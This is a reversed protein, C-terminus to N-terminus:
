RLEQELFRHAVKAPPAGARDVDRNMRRMAPADIRGALGRLAEVVRPREEALGPRALVIADYPPIVGRDDRLVRLDFAAIRGDTSFASIVDVEGRGAAEYMLAPDMSRRAAFDLGYHEVLARWEPRQFFEYDGGIELRPAHPALDSITEAGLGRAREEPLALAYTNEFGLAGVVAIGHEERLFRRVEALVEDRSLGLGERGMITAWITGTYDVYLDLDGTRLADFAVTSGLSQVARTTAGAHGEIRQALIESLIYQEPFSHSGITVV